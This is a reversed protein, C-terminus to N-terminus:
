FKESCHLGLVDSWNHYIALHHVEPAEVIEDAICLVPGLLGGLVDSLDDGLNSVDALLNALVDVVGCWLDSVGPLVEV